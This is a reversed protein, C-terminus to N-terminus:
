YNVTVTVTDSYSGATPYQGAPIRAYVYLLNGAKGAADQSAPMAANTWVTTRTSDSYLEYGLVDGAGSMQRTGSIASTGNDLGVTFSTGKTCTVTLSGQADLDVGATPDYSGFAIDSTSVTCKAAVQATVAFTNTATAARAATSLLAAALAVSLRLATRNM